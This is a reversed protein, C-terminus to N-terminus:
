FQSRKFIESNKIAQCYMNHCHSELSIEFDKALSMNKLFQQHRNIKGRQNQLLDNYNGVIQLMKMFKLNFRQIYTQMDHLDLRQQYMAQKVNQSDFFNGISPKGGYIQDPGMKHNGLKKSKPLTAASETEKIKVETKKSTEGKPPVAENLALSSNFLTTVQAHMDQNQVLAVSSSEQVKPPSTTKVPSQSVRVKSIEKPKGLAVGTDPLGTIPSQLYDNESQTAEIQRESLSTDKNNLETKKYNSM